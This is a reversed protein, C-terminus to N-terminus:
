DNITNQNATNNKNKVEIIKAICIDIISNYLEHNVSYSYVGKVRELEDIIEEILADSNLLPM